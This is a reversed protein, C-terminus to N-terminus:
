DPRIPTPPLARTAAGECALAVVHRGDFYRDRSQPAPPYYSKGCVRVVSEAGVDEILLGHLSNQLGLARGGDDGSGTSRESADSMPFTQWSGGGSSFLRASANQGPGSVSTAGASSLTPEPRSRLVLSRPCALGRGRFARSGDGPLQASGNRPCACIERPIARVLGAGSDSSSRPPLTSKTTGPSHPVWAAAEVTTSRHPSEGTTSRSPAM